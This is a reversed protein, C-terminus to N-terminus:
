GYRNHKDYRGQKDNRSLTEDEATTHEQHQSEATKLNNKSSNVVIKSNITIPALQVKKLISNPIIQTAHVESIPQRSRHSSKVGVRGKSQNKSDRSTVQRKPTTEQM